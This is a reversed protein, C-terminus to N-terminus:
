DIRLLLAATLPAFITKEVFSGFLVFNLFLIASAKQGGHDEHHCQIKTAIEYRLTAMGSVM